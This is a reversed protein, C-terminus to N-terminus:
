RDVYNIIKEPQSVTNVTGTRYNNGYNNNWWDRTNLGQASASAALLALSLM